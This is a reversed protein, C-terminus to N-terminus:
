TEHFTRAGDFSLTTALPLSISSAAIGGAGCPAADDLLAAGRVSVRQRSDCGIGTYRIVIAAAGRMRYSRPLEAHPKARSPPHTLWITYTAGSCCREIGPSKRYAPSMTSKKERRTAGNGYSFSACRCLLVRKPPM